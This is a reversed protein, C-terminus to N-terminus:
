RSGFFSVIKGEELFWGCGTTKGFESWAVRYKGCLRYEIPDEGEITTLRSWLELKLVEALERSGNPGVAQAALKARAIRIDLPTSRPKDEEFERIRKPVEDFPARAAL